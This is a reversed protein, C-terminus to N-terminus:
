ASGRLARLAKSHRRYGWIEMATFLSPFGILALAASWYATNHWVALGAIVTLVACLHLSPKIRRRCQERFREHEAAITKESKLTRTM